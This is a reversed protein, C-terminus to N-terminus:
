ESKAASFGFLIKPEEYDYFSIFVVTKQKNGEKDLYQIEYRDVFAMGMLAKESAYACCSGLRSYKIKNGGSDRLLDLYARQNAPGGKPGIGVKVPLEGTFGYKNNEAVETLKTISVLEPKDQAIINVVSFFTVALFIAYKM